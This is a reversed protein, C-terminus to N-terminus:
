STSPFFLGKNSALKCFQQIKYLDEDEFVMSIAYFSSGTMKFDFGYEKASEEMEDCFFEGKVRVKDVVADRESISISKLAATMAVADNWCSGTLFVDSAAGRLSEIGLCASIAYGNGIAKSYVAMDPKFGFYHHSGKEIFEGVQM